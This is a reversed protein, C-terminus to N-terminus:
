FYDSGLRRPSARAAIAMATVREKSSDQNTFIASTLPHFM